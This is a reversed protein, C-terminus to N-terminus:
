GLAVDLIMMVLFGVTVSLTGVFSHGDATDRGGAAQPILEKVVVYLM